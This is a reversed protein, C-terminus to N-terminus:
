RRMSKPILWYRIMHTIHYQYWYLSVTALPKGSVTLFIACISNVLIQTPLVRETRQRTLSLLYWWTYTPKFSITCNYIKSWLQWNAVVVISTVCQCNVRTLSSYFDMMRRIWFYEVFIGITCDNQKWSFESMTKGVPPDHPLLIQGRKPCINPVVSSWNITPVRFNIPTLLFLGLPQIGPILHISEITKKKIEALYKALLPGFTVSFCLFSYPDLSEDWVFLHWTDFLSLLKKRFESFGMKPWINPWWLSLISALFVFIFLSWFVWGMLTLAQYWIFQPLLKTKKTQKNLESVETEPFFYKTVWPLFISLIPTLLSVGYPSIGLILHVSSITELLFETFGMKPWMNPWWFARISALFVYIFQPLSVWGM